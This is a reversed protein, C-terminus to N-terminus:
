YFANHFFQNYFLINRFHFCKCLCWAFYLIHYDHLLSRFSTGSHDRRDEDDRKQSVNYNNWAKKYKFSNM